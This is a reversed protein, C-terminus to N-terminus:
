SSMLRSGGGLRKEDAAIAGITLHQWKAGAVFLMVGSTIVFLSATGFDPERMVLVFCIGVCLLAPFGAKAFSLAGDERDAFIRALMVVVALKAFESPEFSFSKFAFWRQAGGEMSGLHPVLVLGLLIVAAGFLWPAASRLRCYDVSFGFWAAAGGLVIWLLERKLFYAADHFQTVGDVSSASFVMVAGIAVLLGVVLLLVADVPRRKSM